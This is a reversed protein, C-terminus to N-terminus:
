QRHRTVGVHTFQIDLDCCTSSSSNCTDFDTYVRYVCVYYIFVIILKLCIKVSIHKPM